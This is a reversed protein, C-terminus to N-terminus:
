RLPPATLDVDVVNLLLTFGAADEDVDDDADRVLLVDDVVDDDPRSGGLPSDNRTTTGSPTSGPSGKVSEALPM